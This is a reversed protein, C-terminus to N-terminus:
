NKLKERCNKLNKMSTTQIWIMSYWNLIWFTIRVFIGSYDNSISSFKCVMTGYMTSLYNNINAYFYKKNTRFLFSYCSYSPPLWLHDGYTPMVITAGKRSPAPFFPRSSPFGCASGWSPNWSYSLDLGQGMLSNMTLMSTLINMEHAKKTMANKTYKSGFMYKSKILSILYLLHILKTFYLLM